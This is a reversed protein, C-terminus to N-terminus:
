QIQTPAPTHEIPPLDEPKIKQVVNVAKTDQSTPKYFSNEKVSLSEWISKEDLSEVFVIKGPYKASLENKFQEMNKPRHLDGVLHMGKLEVKITRIENVSALADIAGRPDIIESCNSRIVLTDANELYITPRLSSSTNRNEMFKFSFSKLQANILDFNRHQAKFRNLVFSVACAFGKQMDELCKDGHEKRIDTIGADKTKKYTFHRLHSFELIIGKQYATTLLEQQQLETLKASNIRFKPRFDKSPQYLPTALNFITNVDELADWCKIDKEIDEKHYNNFEEETKCVFLYVFHTKLKEFAFQIIQHETINRLQRAAIRKLIMGLCCLAVSTAAILKTTSSLYKASYVKRYSALVLGTYGLFKLTAGWNRMTKKRLQAAKLNEFNWQSPIPPFFYSSLSNKTPEM